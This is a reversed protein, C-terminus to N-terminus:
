VPKRAVTVITAEYIRKTTEIVLGLKRQIELLEDESPYIIVENETLRHLTSIIKRVRLIWIFLLPTSIISRILEKRYVKSFDFDERLPSTVYIRGGPKLTRHAEKLAIGWLRNPLYNISLHFIEADFFNDQFPFQQCLDFNVLEISKKYIDPLRKINKRAGELMENSNDGGFLRTAKTRDLIDKFNLGSGCGGDLVIGDPCPILSDIMERAVNQSPITLSMKEYGKRYYEDWLGQMDETTLKRKERLEVM